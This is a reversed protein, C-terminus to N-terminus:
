FTSSGTDDFLGLEKWLEGTRRKRIRRERLLARFWNEVREVAPGPCGMSRALKATGWLSDADGHPFFVFVLNGRRLVVKM